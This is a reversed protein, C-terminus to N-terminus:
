QIIKGMVTINKFSPTSNTRITVYKYVIGSDKWKLPIYLITIATSDNAKAISDKLLTTTCGCGTEFQVIKIHDSFHNKFYITKQFTDSSRMTAFSLTDESLSYKVFVHKKCSYSFFSTVLICIKFM